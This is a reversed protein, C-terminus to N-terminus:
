PSVRAKAFGCQCNALASECGKLWTRWTLLSTTDAGRYRGGKKDVVGPWGYRRGAQLQAACQEVM